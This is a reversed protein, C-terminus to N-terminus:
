AQNSGQVLNGSILVVLGPRRRTTSLACVIRPRLKGGGLASSGHARVSGKGTCGARAKMDSELATRGPTRALDDCVRRIAPGDNTVIFVPTGGKAVPAAQEPVAVHHPGCHM